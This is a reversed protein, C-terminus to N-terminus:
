YTSKAKVEIEFEIEKLYNEIGVKDILKKFQKHKFKDFTKYANVLDVNNSICFEVMEEMKTKVLDELKKVATYTFFDKNRTLFKKTQNEEVVEQIFTTLEVSAKLKFKEGEISPKLEFKSSTINFLLSANNYLEDSVGEVLIVGQFDNNNFFNIERVMNADLEMIKKSKKFISITGENTLYLKKEQSSENSMSSNQESQAQVEISNDGKESSVKIQPLIGLSLESYYGKYFTEIGSDKAPFYRKDFNIIEEIKLQKETYLNKMASSFDDIDGSFNILISNRGIKKTRTMFDLSNVIGKESINDGFALIECQAFGIKKGISVSINDVAEGLTDGVGDYFIYKAQKDQGPSLVSLAIHIKDQKEDVCMLTVIAETQSMAPKTLEPVTVAFLIIFVWVIVQRPSFIHKLKKM